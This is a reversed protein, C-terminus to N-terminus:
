ADPDTEGGSDDEGEASVRKGKVSQEVEAVLSNLYAEDRHIRRVGTLM